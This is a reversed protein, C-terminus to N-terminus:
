FIHASKELVIEPYTEFEFSHIAGPSLSVLARSEGRVYRPPKSRPQQPEHGEEERVRKGKNLLGQSVSAAHLNAIPQQRDGSLTRDSPIKDSLAQATTTLYTDPRQPFTADSAGRRPSSQSYQQTPLAQSDSTSGAQASPEITYTRAPVAYGM